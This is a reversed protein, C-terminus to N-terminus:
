AIGDAPVTAFSGNEVLDSEASGEPPTAKITIKSSVKNGHTGPGLDTKITVFTPEGSCKLNEIKGSREPGNAYSVKVEITATDGETCDYAAIVSGDSHSVKFVAVNADGDSSQAHAIPAIMLATASSLALTGLFKQM